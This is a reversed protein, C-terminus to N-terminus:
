YLPFVNQHPPIPKQSHHIKPTQHKNQNPPNQKTKPNSTNKEGEDHQTEKGKLSSRPVGGVRRGCEHFFFPPHNQSAPVTSALAEWGCQSDQGWQKRHNSTRSQQCQQKGSCTDQMRNRCIIQSMRSTSKPHTSQRQKLQRERLNAFGHRLCPAEAGSTM